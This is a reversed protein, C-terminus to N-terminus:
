STRVRRALGFGSQGYGDGNYLMWTEGSWDFVCPYCVMEGDWEGRSPSLGISGDSREWTLGDKSAAWGLRYTKPAVHSRYCYYMELGDPSDRVCPRSIAYEGDHVFDLCLSPDRAWVVGDTSTARRIVHQMEDAKAGWAKNTGYWMKMSGPETAVWPYSMTFPDEESRDLVPVRGVRVFPEDASSRVAMGITNAWPVTVRLNWGMYYLCETRGWPVVSGVAVGSDDFLGLEGPSLVPEHEINIVRFGDDPALDVAGIHSRGQDDRSSHYVRMTGDANWAVTPTSAHSRAWWDEGSPVYVCGLKEWLM